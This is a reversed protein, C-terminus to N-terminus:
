VGAPDTPSNWAHAATLLVRKRLLPLSARGYMQRKLMKIHNVRSEVPGSNWRGTLGQVVADWDRELSSAFSHLHPLDGARVATIWDKLHQGTHTTLIRAFGRVHEATASLEPCQSLITEFAAREDDALREPRNMIWGTAQRVTPPAPPAVHIRALRLPRVYDSILQCSGGYGRHRLESYLLAANRHGEAWRQALYPKYPDLQSPRPQRRGTLLQEANPAHAARLVTNLGLHLIRAIERIGRGQGLLQHLIAHRERLRQEIPSVPAAPPDACAGPETDDANEPPKLCRHHRRVAKEVATGLNQRLHFRDAVQVAHPAGTRAGDAYSGARDRCIARVGPHLRQWGSLTAANRGDVLDLVQRTACDVLVTGYHQGRRTAFDDVGLVAPVTWAPDPIATVLRLLTARSVKVRLRAALRAGARGALAVAISQLM